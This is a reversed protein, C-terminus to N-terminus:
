KNKKAKADAIAKDFRSTLGENKPEDKKREGKPSENFKGKLAVFNDNAKQLKKNDEKLALYKASAKTLQDELQAIYDDQEVIRAAMEEPTLEPEETAKPKIETLEELDDPNGFVYTEGSQMLIEGNEDASEGAPAGNIQAKDGVEIADDEALDYFDVENNEADFVIKNSTFIAKVKALFSKNKSNTKKMKNLNKNVSKKSDVRNLAQMLNVPRLVEEIETAFRLAVCEEPSILTENDMYERAQEYSMDTHKAYHEAIQKNCEELDVATRVLQKADGMTYCWANHVFPKTYETVQRVDGALFFVTAISACQGEALTTVTANNEKAYRRLASYIAFGENVDGGICNIRIRVDEGNAEDLQKKVNTLNIYGEWNLGQFPIIEGYIFIDKAM